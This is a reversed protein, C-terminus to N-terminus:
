KVKYEILELPKVDKVKVFYKVRPSYWYRFIDEIYTLTSDNYGSITVHCVIEFVDFEGAEVSLKKFSDVRYNMIFIISIGNKGSERFSVDWKKGLFLPFKVLPLPDKIFEMTNGTKADIRKKNGFYRTKYLLDRGNVAFLLNEGEPRLFELKIKRGDEDRLVWFDGASFDPFEASLEKANAAAMLILSVLFVILLIEAKKM